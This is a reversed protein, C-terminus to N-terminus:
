HRAHQAQLQVKGYQQRSVACHLAEPRARDAPLASARRRSCDGIASCTNVKAIGAPVEDLGACQDMNCIGIVESRAARFHVGSPATGASRLRASSQQAAEGQAAAGLVTARAWDLWHLASRTMVATQVTM